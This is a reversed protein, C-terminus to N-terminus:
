AYHVAVGGSACKGTELIAAPSKTQQKKVTEEIYTVNQKLFIFIRKLIDVDSGGSFKDAIRDYDGAFAEHAELTERMIDSVNQNKKILVLNNEYPPLVALLVEKTM